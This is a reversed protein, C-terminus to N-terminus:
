NEDAADSTYLLCAKDLNRAAKKHGPQLNLIEKYAEIAKEFSEREIYFEAESLLKDVLEAREAKELCQQRLSNAEIHNPDVKLIEDFKTIAERFRQRKFLSRGESFLEKIKQREQSKEIIVDLDKIVKSCDSYRDEIDKELCKSVVAQIDDVLDSEELTIKEPDEHCIQYMVANTSGVFPRKYTLLEYFVVGFSFIDSRKDVPIGRIQEPSMYYVTGLKIGTQTMSSAEPKAIGFDMIKVKGDELIKINEPKVDRHVINKSHAFQLGKCVQVAYDLKQTLSLPEKHNIIFRLDKGTLYEMVIFPKGDAEGVDHVITINEHSLKGASRAERLLREKIDLLDLARESIVKIAVERDILPDYAKYVVGMGGKGIEEM